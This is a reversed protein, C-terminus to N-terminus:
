YKNEEYTSDSAFASSPIAENIDEEEEGEEEDNHKKDEVIYQMLEKIENDDVGINYANFVKKFDDSNLHSSDNKNTIYNFIEDAEKLKSSGIKINILECVDDFTFEEQDPKSNEEIYKNIEGASNKYM